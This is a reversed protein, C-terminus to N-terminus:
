TGAGLQCKVKQRYTPHLYLTAAVGPPFAQSAQPERGWSPFAALVYFLCYVKLGSTITSLPRRQGPSAPLSSGNAESKRTLFTQLIECSPGM